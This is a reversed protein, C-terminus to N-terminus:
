AALLVSTDGGSRADGIVQLLAEVSFPKHLLVDFHRAFDEHSENDGTMSVVFPRPSVPRDTLLRAVASSNIGPLHEDLLVLEFTRCRLLQLATEGDHAVIARHGYCNLLFALSDAVIENDDVVLVDM